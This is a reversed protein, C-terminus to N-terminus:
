GLVAGILNGVASARTSANKNLADRNGLLAQLANGSAGTSANFLSTGGGLLLQAIQSLQDNAGSRAGLFSQNIQSLDSTNQDNIRDGMRSGRVGFESLNQLGQQSRQKIGDLEPGLLKAIASQDGSAITRYYDLPGQIASRADNIFPLAQGLAARSAESQQNILANSQQVIQKEQAKEDKTKGGFISGM